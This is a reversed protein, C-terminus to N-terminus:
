PILDLSKVEYPLKIRGYPVSTFFSIEADTKWYDPFPREAEKWKEQIPERRLTAEYFGRNYLFNADSNSGGGWNKLYEGLKRNFVLWSINEWNGLGPYDGRLKSKISHSVLDCLVANPTVEARQLIYRRRPQDITAGTIFPLTKLLVARRIELTIVGKVRAGLFDEDRHKQPLYQFIEFSQRMWKEPPPNTLGAMKYLLAESMPAKSFRTNIDGLSSHIVRGSRLTIDSQYDVQVAFYPPQVGELLFQPVGKVYRTQNQTGSSFADYIRKNESEIQLKIADRMDKSFESSEQQQDPFLQCLYYPWYSSALHSLGLGALCVVLPLRVSRLRYRLVAVVSITLVLTLNAILYRTNQLPIDVMRPIASMQSFRMSLWSMGMILFVASGLLAAFITPLNRLFLAYLAVIAVLVATWLAGELLYLFIDLGNAPVELLPIAAWKALLVPLFLFLAIFIVKSVLLSMWGVPRTALFHLTRGPADLRILRIVVLVIMLFFGGVCLKTLSSSGRIESTADHQAIFPLAAALAWVLLVWLRQHRFDKALLHLILASPNM